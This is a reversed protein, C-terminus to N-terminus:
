LSLWDWRSHCATTHLFSSHCVPLNRPHPKSHEDVPEHLMSGSRVRWRHWPYGRRRLPMCDGPLVGHRSWRYEEIDMRLLKQMLKLNLRPWAWVREAKAIRGFGRFVVACYRVLCQANWLSTSGRFGWAVNESSARMRSPLWESPRHKMFEVLYPVSIRVTSARTPPLHPYIGAFMKKCSSPSSPTDVGQTSYLGHV